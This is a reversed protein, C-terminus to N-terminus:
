ASKTLRDVIGWISNYGGQTHSLGVVFDMSINNWEWDLIDLPQFLGGPRQHEIKMQQRVMYEVMCEVVYEVINKKM